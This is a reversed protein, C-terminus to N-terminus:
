RSNGPNDTKVPEGYRHGVILVYLDCQEVDRLCSDRVSESRHENKKGYSNYPVNGQSRTATGAPPRM